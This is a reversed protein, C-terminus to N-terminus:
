RHPPAQPRLQLADDLASVRHVVLFRIDPHTQMAAGIRFPLPRRISAATLMEPGRASNSARRCSPRSKDAKDQGGGPFDGAAEAPGAVALPLSSDRGRSVLKAARVLNM